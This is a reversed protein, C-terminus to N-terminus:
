VHYLTGSSIQIFEVVHNALEGDDSGGSIFFLFVAFFFYLVGFHLFFYVFILQNYETEQLLTYVLFVKEKRKTGRM